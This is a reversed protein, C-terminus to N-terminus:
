NWLRWPASQTAWMGELLQKDRLTDMPQWFGGHLYARLNGEDALAEMPEREWVTADGNLYHEVDRSLVFFGGNIWGAAELPKEDFETVRDGDLELQGFRSMPRVATVTARKGHNRHFAITAGIDVDAVGDGYTLCFTEDTECLYRM